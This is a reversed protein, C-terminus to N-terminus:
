RVRSTPPTAAAQVQAHEYDAGFLPNTTSRGAAIAYMALLVLGVGLVGYTVLPGNAGFASTILGGAAAGVISATQVLGFRTAMVTGRNSPDAAEMLATQNAVAYVPNGISAVFLAVAIFIVSQGVASHSMAIALSFIGTLLLGAGVTRMTGIAGFRSVAVSGVFIGVSGVVELLSYIQGGIPSAQDVPAGWPSALQYALALLAPFSMPILFAALTGIVLHPRAEAIAWTRKLAGSVPATAAGGGLGPIGFVILASLAFTAADAIFLATTSHFEALMGGALAFGAAGGLM